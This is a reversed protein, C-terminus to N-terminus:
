NSFKFIQFNSFAKKSRLFKNKLAKIKLHNTSMASILISKIIQVSKRANKELFPIRRKKSSHRKQKTTLKSKQSLIQKNTIHVFKLIRLM